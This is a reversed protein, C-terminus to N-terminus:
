ALGTVSALMRRSELLELVARVISASARNSKMIKKGKNGDANFRDVGGSLPLNM